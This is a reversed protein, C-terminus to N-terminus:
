YFEVNDLEFLLEPFQRIYVNEELDDDDDSNDDDYPSLIRFMFGDEKFPRNPFDDGLGRSPPGYMTVVIRIRRGPLIEVAEELTLRFSGSVPGSHTEGVTYKPDIHRLNTSVSFSSIKNLKPNGFLSIGTLFVKENVEFDISDSEFGDYNYIVYRYHQKTRNVGVRKRQKKRPESSFPIKQLVDKKLMKQISVFEKLTMVPFRILSVADELIGKKSEPCIEKEDKVLQTECWKDVAMFLDIEKVNLADLQLIAKVSQLNLAIFSERKVIESANIAITYLCSDIVAKEGFALCQPLANLVNEKTVSEELFKSCKEELGSILYFKALNLIPFVNEWNLLIQDMYIYRLFEAICDANGYSSLDLEVGKEAMPGYFQSYFVSSTSSLILKHVPIRVDGSILTFDSMSDNKYLSKIKQHITSKCEEWGDEARKRKAM